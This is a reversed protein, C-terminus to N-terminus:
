VRFVDVSQRVERAKSELDNALHLLSQAASANEESMSSVRETSQALDNAAATQEALSGSIDDIVSAVEGFSHQITVISQQATEADSVGQRTTTVVKDMSSLAHNAVEGIKASMQNIENTANATREALKRVEDAVVAFGRGQEGARAAEIAANLALLNTQDAIEKIVKVVDSIRTADEGLRSVEASATEIENATALLGAVTKNVVKGGQEANSRSSNAIRKASSGQDSIHTTSVSLEEIAAAMGSVADSEHSVNQSIQQASQALHQAMVGVHDAQSKVKAIMDRLSSQMHYANALLSDPELAHSPQGSFDGNAMMNVVQRVETPDGGLQRMIQHTVVNALLFTLVLSIVVWIVVTNRRQLYSTEAQAIKEKSKEITFINFQDRLEKIQKLLDRDIGAVIVDSAHTDGNHADMQALYKASVLQHAQAIEVMSSLFGDFGTHGEALTKVGSIAAANAQDFREAQDTYEDRYKKVYAADSGRIWVDKSLKVERLFAINMTGINGMVEIDHELRTVSTKEDQLSGYLQVLAFIAVGLLMVFSLGVLAMLKSKMTLGATTRGMVSGTVKTMGGLM